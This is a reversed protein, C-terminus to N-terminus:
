GGSPYAGITQLYSAYVILLIVIIITSIPGVHSVGAAGLPLLLTMAAEPGYAASSLADLGLLPIGAAVGVKQEEEEHSSLPRGLLFDPLRMTPRPYRRQRRADGAPECKSWCQSRSATRRSECTRRGVM